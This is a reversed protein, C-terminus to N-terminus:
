RILGENVQARLRIRAFMLDADHIVAIEREPIGLAILSKLQMTHSVTGALMSELEGLEIGALKEIAAEDGADAQAIFQQGNLNHPPAIVLQFIRCFVLQTGRVDMTAQYRALIDRAVTNVKNNDHDPALPYVLRADLSLMRGRNLLALPNNMHRDTNKFDVVIQKFGKKRIADPEIVLEKIQRWVFAPDRQTWGALTPHHKLQNQCGCCRRLELLHIAVRDSQYLRSRQKYGRGSASLWAKHGTSCLCHLSRM